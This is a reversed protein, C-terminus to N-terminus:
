ETRFKRLHVMGDSLNWIIAIDPKGYRCKKRMIFNERSILNLLTHLIHTRTCRNYNYYSWVGFHDISFIITECILEHFLSIRLGFHPFVFKKAWDVAFLKNKMLVEVPILSVLVLNMILHILNLYSPLAGHKALLRFLKLTDSWKLNLPFETISYPDYLDMIDFFYCSSHTGCFDHIYFFLSRSTHVVKKRASM